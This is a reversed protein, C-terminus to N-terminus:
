STNPCRGVSTKAYDAAAPSSRVAIVQLRLEVGVASDPPPPAIQSQLPGSDDVCDTAGRQGSVRRSQHTQYLFEALGSRIM